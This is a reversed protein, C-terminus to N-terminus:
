TPDFVSVDDFHAKSTKRVSTEIIKYIIVLLAVIVIIGFILFFLWDNEDDSAEGMEYSVNDNEKKSFSAGEM